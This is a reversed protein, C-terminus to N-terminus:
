FKRRGQDASHLWFILMKVYFKEIRKKKSSNQRSIFILIKSYEVIEMESLTNQDCGGGEPPQLILNSM